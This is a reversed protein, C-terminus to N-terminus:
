VLLSVSLFLSLSSIVFSWLKEKYYFVLQYICFSHHFYFIQCSEIITCEPLFCWHISFSTFSLKFLLLIDCLKLISISSYTFFGPLWQRPGSILTLTMLSPVFQFGTGGALVRHPFRLMLETTSRGFIHLRFRLRLFCWVFYIPQLKLITLTPWPFVSSSNQVSPSM